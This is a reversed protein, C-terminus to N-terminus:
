TSYLMYASLSEPRLAKKSLFVKCYFFFMIIHSYLDYTSMETAQEPLCESYHFPCLIFDTIYSIPVIRILLLSHNM